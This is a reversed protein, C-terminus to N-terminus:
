PIRRDHARNVLTQPGPIQLGYTDDPQLTAAYDALRALAAVAGHYGLSLGRLPELEEWLRQAEELVLRLSAEASRRGVDTTSAVIAAHSRAYAKVIEATRAVDRDEQVLIELDELSTM